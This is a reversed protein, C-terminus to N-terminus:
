QRESRVPVGYVSRWKKAAEAATLGDRKWEVIISRDANPVMERVASVYAELEHDEGPDHTVEPKQQWAEDYMKRGIAVIESEIAQRQEPTADALRRAIKRANRILHYAANVKAAYAINEPNM